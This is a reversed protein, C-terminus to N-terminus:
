RGLKNNRYKGPSIHYQKKFVRCFYDISNFGCETSITNIKKETDSLKAAAVKLRYSILYNVPTIHLYKNFLNLATSKSISAKAAIDELTIEKTYHEHIFQMMIQLRSLSAASSSQKEDLCDFDISKHINLWLHQMLSSVLLENDKENKHISIIKQFDSIIPTSAPDAKNFVLYQINSNIIPLVYKKYILSGEPAIFSPMCLFNPISAACSSHFKHLMKTNIFIADGKSLTLEQDGIWM